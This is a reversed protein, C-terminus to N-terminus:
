EVIDMSRVGSNSLECLWNTKISCSPKDEGYSSYHDHCMDWFAPARTTDELVSGNCILRVYVHKM